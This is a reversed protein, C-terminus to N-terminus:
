KLLIARERNSRHLFLLLCAPTAHGGVQFLLADHACFPGSTPTTPQHFPKGCVSAPRKAAIGLPLPSWKVLRVASPSGFGPAIRKKSCLHGSSTSNWHPPLLMRRIPLSWPRVSPLFSLEKKKIWSSVTTRSVRLGHAHPRAPPEREQSAQLIEERRAEPYANPTSNERSQRGCVRCRYLQKRVRLMVM